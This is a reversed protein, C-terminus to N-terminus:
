SSRSTPISRRRPSASSACPRTRGGLRGPRERHARRPLGRGDARRAARLLVGDGSGRRLPAPRRARLRRFAPDLLAGLIERVRDARFNICLLGAGESAGRYGGIATPEVFEDTEGRAYAAEIAPLAGRRRGARARASRAIPASSGTGATTAIWPSSAAWSPASAWTRGIESRRWFRRSRSSRATPRCTRTRRHRSAAGRAGRGRVAHPGGRGHPEPPQARRRPQRPGPRARRGGDSRLAAGRLAGCGPHARARRRAGGPRHAAPGDAGGQGGRDHHPRSRLQGDAGRAPRRGPRPDRAHRPPLHGAPPGMVPTAALLPANGERHGTLGWGDLICLVVPRTM